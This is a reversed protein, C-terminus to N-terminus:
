MLPDQGEARKAASPDIGAALLSRAHDRRQRAEKLSVDPYSGFSLKKEKGAFRYKLKWLKGGAPVLLLYLGKEDSLKRAADGAKASRIATDSLPM